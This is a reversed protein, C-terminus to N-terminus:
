APSDAAGGLQAEKLLERYHGPLTPQADGNCAQGAQLSDRQLNFGIACRAFGYVFWMPERPSQRQEDAERHSFKMGLQNM